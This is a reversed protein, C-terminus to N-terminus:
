EIGPGLHALLAFNAGKVGANAAVAAERQVIDLELVEALVM